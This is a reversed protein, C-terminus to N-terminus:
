YRLIAALPADAPVTQPDVAYITGGHLLTQVAALDLLDQDGPRPQDHIEVARTQPDFSGWCQQGLAVFLTDVRGDYAARVAQQLDSSAQESDSGALTHYKEVSERRTHLFLPQVIRWAQQHLDQAAVQDPNGAIGEDVLHPYHNAQQYIARLYDVGALVLPAREASLLGALGNDVQQFFRLVNTKGETAQGVGHGHFVAPRDGKGGPQVTATHFQLQKEADNFRLAESLAQPVGDLDVQDVSYRTGHLLRVQQQSLALVYFRGDGSLLPLLPKVHFRWGVVALPTFAHPLRYYRFFGLSLFLALGDSLYRWLLYNQLLDRAPRLLEQAAPSRVDASLLDQEAHALLNKLRIRDGEIEAGARHTPLFISVHWGDERKALRELEARGLLDM